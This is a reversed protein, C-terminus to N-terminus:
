KKRKDSGGGAIEGGFMELAAKVIPDVEKADTGPAGAPGAPSEESYGSNSSKALAGETITLAVKLNLGFVANIAEEILRKNEV